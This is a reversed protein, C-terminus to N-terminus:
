SEILICRLTYFENYRRTIQFKGQADSGLIIYSAKKRFKEEHVSYDKIMIARGGELEMKSDVAFSLRTKRNMEPISDEDIDPESNKEM